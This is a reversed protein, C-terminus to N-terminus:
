LTLGLSPQHKYLDDLLGAGVYTAFCTVIEDFKLKLALDCPTLGSSNRLKPNAGLGLLVEICPVSETGKLVAEHLATNGTSRTKADLKAGNEVLLTIYGVHRNSVVLSLLPLGVDPACVNVDAGQDCSLLMM